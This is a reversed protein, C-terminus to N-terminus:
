GKILAFSSHYVAKFKGEHRGQLSGEKVCSLSQFGIEGLPLMALDFMYTMSIISIIELKVRKQNFPHSYIFTMCKFQPYLRSYSLSRRLLSCQKPLLSFFAKVFFNLGSNKEPRRKVIAQTTNVVAFIAKLNMSKITVCIRRTLEIPFIRLHSYLIHM